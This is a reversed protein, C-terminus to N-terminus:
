SDFDLLDDVMEDLEEFHGRWIDHIIEKMTKIEPPLLMPTNRKALRYLEEKEMGWPEM